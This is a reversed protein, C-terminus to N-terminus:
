QRPAPGDPLRKRADVLIGLMAAHAAVEDQRAIAACVRGHEPLSLNFSSAHEANLVLVGELVMEILSVLTNLMPNGGAALVERHFALDAEVWAHQDRASEMLAYAHEIRQLQAPTRKRAALAAVGPELVERVEALQRLFELSLGAAARWALIDPDLLNWTDQSRVRMGLRPKVDLLGKAVLVKTAERLATRSVSLELSLEEESPLATGPAYRGAAIRRGLEHVVQGHLSRGSYTAM